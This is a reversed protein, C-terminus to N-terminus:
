REGRHSRFVVCIVLALIVVGVGFGPGDGETVDNDVDDDPGATDGDGKNGGDEEGASTPAVSVSGSQSGDDSSIRYVATTGVELGATDADFTVTTSEGGALTVRESDETRGDFRFVVEQTAEVDGANTITASVDYTEGPSEIEMSDPSLDRVEFHATPGGETAGVSISATEQSPEPYKTEATRYVTATVRHDGEELPDDLSVAINRHTEDASLRDSRGLETGDEDTLVVFGGYNTELEEIRITEGPSDRDDFEFTRVTPPSLVIGDIAQSPNINGAGGERRIKIEFTTGEEAAAFGDENTLEWVQVDRDEDFRPYVRTQLDFFAAGEGEGAKSETQVTLNSGAAVNTVGQITVNEGKPAEVRDNEADWHMWQQDIGARPEQFEFEVSTSRTEGLIGGVSDHSETVDFTFTAALEEPAELERGPTTVVDPGSEMKLPLYFTELNIEDEGTEGFVRNQSLPLILAEEDLEAETTAELTARWEICRADSNWLDTIVDDERDFLEDISLNENRLLVEHFTGTLGAVHLEVVIYDGNAIVGRAPTIRGGEELGPIDDVTEPDIANVGAGPATQVALDEEEPEKDVIRVTEVTTEAEGEPRDPDEKVKAYFEYESTGMAVGCQSGGLIDLGPHAIATKGDEGVLTVGDEEHTFFGHNRSEWDPQDNSDDGNPELYGGDTRVYGHGVQFTNLYVTGEGDEDTDRVSLNIGVTNTDSDRFTITGRTTNEFELEIPIIDGRVFVDGATPSTIRVTGNEVPPPDDEESDAFAGVTLSGTLNAEVVDASTDVTSDNVVSWTSSDHTWVGLSSENADSVDGSEYYISVDLFADDSTGTAQLYRGISTANPNEPPASAADVVLNEGQFSVTTNPKTSTGIDLREVQNDAANAGLVVAHDNRRAIGDRITNAHGDGIVFGAGANETVTNNTLLNNDSGFNDHLRIGDGGNGSATNNRIVNNSGATLQIGVRENDSATNNVLRNSTSDRLFFGFGSNGSATSDALRIDDNFKDLYIGGANDIARVDSILGGKVFSFQVGRAFSASWGRVELDTVSVNSLTEGEQQVLIGISEREPNAGEVVHGQGDLIVNSTTIRICTANGVIDAELEHRGPEDIVAAPDEDLCGTIPEATSGSGAALAVGTLAITVALGVVLLYGVALTMRGILTSIGRGPQRGIRGAMRRKTECDQEVTELPPTAREDSAEGRVLPWLPLSHHYADTSEVEPSHDNTEESM